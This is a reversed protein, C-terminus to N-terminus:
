EGEPETKAERLACVQALAADREAMFYKTDKEGAAIFEGIGGLEAKLADREDLLADREKTLAALEAVVEGGALAITAAALSHQAREAAEYRDILALLDDRHVRHYTSALQNVFERTLPKM